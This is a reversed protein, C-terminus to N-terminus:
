HGEGLQRNSSDSVCLLEASFQVDIGAVEFESSGMAAVQSGGVAISLGDLIPTIVRGSITARPSSPLYSMAKM